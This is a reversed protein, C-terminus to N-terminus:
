LFYLTSWISCIWLLAARQVVLSKAVLDLTVAMSSKTPPSEFLYSCICTEAQETANDISKHCDRHWIIDRGVGIQGTIAVGLGHGDVLDM